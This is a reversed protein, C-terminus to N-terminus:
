EQEVSALLINSPALDLNEGIPLLIDDLIIESRELGRVLDYMSLGLDESRVKLGLSAHGQPDMDVLLVRKGLGSLGASLNIATITKGCGGKQNAIAYVIM